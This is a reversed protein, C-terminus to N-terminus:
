RGVCFLNLVIVIKEWLYACRMTNIILKNKILVAHPINYITSTQTKSSNLIYKKSFLVSPITLNETYGAFPM